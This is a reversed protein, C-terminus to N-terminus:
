RFASRLSAPHGPAPQGFAGYKRNVGLLQGLV